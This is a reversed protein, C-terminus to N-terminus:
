EAKINGAAIVQTWKAIEHAIHASYEKPAMGVAEFGIEGMRRRLEPMELATQAAASLRTMIPEPMRAPAIMGFEAAADVKPLGSEAMTPVGPLMDVRGTTIGLAKLQGSRVHELVAPITGFTFDVKAALLDIISPGGGRYPVHITEIGAAQRFQECGLHIATGLGASAMTVTGPKAKALAILDQVSNVPLSAPVVLVLSSRAFLAVPAFDNQTNYPLRAGFLGPNIAFATDIVGVTYGDPQSTGIAQTGTISAGGGRNDVFMSQGLEKAMYSTVLRAVIDSAGGAAYPVIVRVPRQPYEQARAQDGVAVFPTLAFGLLLSRRDFKNMKM